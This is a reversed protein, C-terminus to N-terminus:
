ANAAEGALPGIVRDLIWLQRDPEPENGHPLTAGHQSELVALEGDPAIQHGVPARKEAFEVQRTAIM